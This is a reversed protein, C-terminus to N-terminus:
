VPQRNISGTISAARAVITPIVGLARALWQLILLGVFAGSNIVFIRGVIGFTFDELGGLVFLAAAYLTGEFVVSAVAFATVARVTQLKEM